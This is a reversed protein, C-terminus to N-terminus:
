CTKIINDKFTHWVRKYQYCYTDLHACFMSKTEGIKIYYNGHADTKMGPPFFEELTKEYDFPIQMKTLNLFLQKISGDMTYDVEQKIKKRIEKIEDEKKDIKQQQDKIKDIKKASTEENLKNKSM